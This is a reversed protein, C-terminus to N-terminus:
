ALGERFLLKRFCSEGDFAGFGAQASEAFLHSTLREGENVQLALQLFSGARSRHSVILVHRRRFQYDRPCAM